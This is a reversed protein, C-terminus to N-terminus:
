LQFSAYALKCSVRVINISAWLKEKESKVNRELQYSEIISQYWREEPLKLVMTKAVLKNM